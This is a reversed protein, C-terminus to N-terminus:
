TIYVYSIKLVEEFFYDSIFKDNVYLLSMKLKQLWIVYINVCKKIEVCAQQIQGRTVDLVFHINMTKNKLQGQM